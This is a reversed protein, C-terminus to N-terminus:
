KLLMIIIFSIGLGRVLVSFTVLIVSIWSNKKTDRPPNEQHGKSPIRTGALLDARTHRGQPHPCSRGTGM